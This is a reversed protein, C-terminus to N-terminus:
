SHRLVAEPRPRRALASVSRERARGPPRTHVHGDLEFTRQGTPTSPDARHLGWALILSM